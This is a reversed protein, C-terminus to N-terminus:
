PRRHAHEVLDDGVLALLEAPERPATGCASASAAQRPSAGARSKSAARPAGRRAADPEDGLDLLGRRGPASSSASRSGTAWAACRRRPRARGRDRHEGVLLVELPLRSSRTATRAATATGSSRLSKMTSSYWSQSTARPPRRRPAASRPRERRRPASRSRSWAALPMPSAVSTSTCVAARARGPAARQARRDDPDVVAIELRELRAELGRERRSGRIGGPGCRRHALAPM